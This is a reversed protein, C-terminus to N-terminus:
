GIFGDTMSGEDSSPRKRGKKSAKKTSSEAVEGVKSEEEVPEVLGSLKDVEIVDGPKHLGTGDYFVIKCRVKM